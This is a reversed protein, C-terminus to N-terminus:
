DRWVYDFLLLAATLMVGTYAVLLQIEPLAEVFGAGDLAKRTAGIGGVLVPLLVPFALVTFLTGKVGAQAVIAAILTAAAALGASGLALTLLLVGWHAPPLPLLIQFLPIVVADLVFLLLLNFLYKGFYVQTGAASLRLAIWTGREAEVVFTRSLGALAAFLLVIWLLAAQIDPTIAFGGISYSVAVLTVVSFLVVAGLAARARAETRLDKHLVALAGRLWSL